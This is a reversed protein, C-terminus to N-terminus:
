EDGEGRGVVPLDRHGRDEGVRAPGVLVLPGGDGGGDGPGHDLGIQGGVGRRQFRIASPGWTKESRYSITFCMARPPIACTYRARSTRSSRGTARLTSNGSSDTSWDKTSRKRRSALAAALRVWGLM